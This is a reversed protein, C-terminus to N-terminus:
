KVDDKFLYERDFEDVKVQEDKANEENYDHQKKWAAQHFSQTARTPQGHPL